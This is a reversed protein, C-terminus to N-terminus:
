ALRWLAAGPSKIYSLQAIMETGLCRHRVSNRDMSQNPKGRTHKKETIPDTGVMIATSQKKTTPQEKPRIRSERSERPM